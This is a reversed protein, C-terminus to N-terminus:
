DHQAVRGGSAPRSGHPLGWPQGALVRAAQWPHWQLPCDMCLGLALLVHRLAASLVQGLLPEPSPVCSTTSYWCVRTFPSSKLTSCIQSARAEHSCTHNCVHLVFSAMLVIAPALAFICDMLPAASQGYHAPLLCAGSLRRSAGFPGFYPPCASVGPHASSRTPLSPSPLHRQLPPHRRKSRPLQFMQLPSALAASRSRQRTERLILQM